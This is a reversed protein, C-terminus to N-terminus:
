TGTPPENAGINGRYPASAESASPVRDLLITPGPATQCPQGPTYTLSVLRDGVEIRTLSVTMVDPRHVCVSAMESDPPARYLREIAETTLGPNDAGFLQMRREELTRSGGASTVLLHPGLPEIVRPTSRDWRLIFPHRKAEVAILTFPEFPELDFDRVRREVQLVSPSDLLQEVLLGRSVKRGPPVPRGDVFLNAIGVSVGANNVGVWSGGSDSDRPSIWGIGKAHEVLPPVAIGRSRREDRSHWLTFGDARPLWAITCM